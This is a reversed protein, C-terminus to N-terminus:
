ELEHRMIEQRNTEPNTMKKQVAFVGTTPLGGFLENKLRTIERDKDGLLKKTHASEKKM